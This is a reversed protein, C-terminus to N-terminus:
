GSHHPSVYQPTFNGGAFICFLQFIALPNGFIDDGVLSTDVVFVKIGLTTGVWIPAIGSITQPALADKLGKLPQWTGSLNRASYVIQGSGSFYNPDLFVTSTPHVAFVYASGSGDGLAAAILEYGGAYGSVVIDDNVLEITAVESGDADAMRVVSLGPAPYEAPPQVDDAKGGGSLFPVYMAVTQIFDPAPGTELSFGAGGFPQYIASGGRTLVGAGITNISGFNKSYFLDGPGTHAIILPSATYDWIGGFAYVNNDPTAILKWVEASRDGSDIGPIVSLSGWTGGVCSAYGYYPFGFPSGPDGPDELIAALWLTGDSSACFHPNSFGILNLKTKPVGTIPSLWTDSTTDFVLVVSDTANELTHWALVYLTTGHQAVNFVGSTTPTFSTTTTSLSSWSLGRDTSKAFQAVPQFTVDTLSEALFAYMDGNSVTFVAGPDMFQLGSRSNAIGVCSSRRGIKGKFKVITITQEQTDSGGSEDHAGLTFISTGAGFAIGSILGSASLSLGEPLSGSEVTWVVDGVAGSPQQLQIATRIGATIEPIELTPLAFGFSMGATPITLALTIPPVVAANSAVVVTPISLALTVPPVVVHASTVQPEPIKGLAFRGPQAYRSGLKSSKKAAM